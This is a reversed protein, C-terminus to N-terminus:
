TEEGGFLAMQDDASAEFACDAVLCEIAGHLDAYRGTPEAYSDASLGADQYRETVQHIHFDYFRDGELRNTHEHSRGNYRRLRVVLNSTPPLYALVVSFDMANLLSQRVMIRFETGDEGQLDLQRERHGRKAVPQLRGRWDAPLAKVEQLLANIEADALRPEM